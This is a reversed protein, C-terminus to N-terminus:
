VAPERVLFYHRTVDVGGFAGYDVGVEDVVRFGNKLYVKLGAPESMVYTKLGYKDAVDTGSKVLANGIGKHWFDPHTTLYELTLVEEGNVVGGPALLKEEAVELPSSRYELLGTDKMGPVRGKADSAADYAEKYLATQIDTPEVVQASLWVDGRKALSPPLTWRAYGIVKEEKEEKGNGNETETESKTPDHDLVAVEHRRADRATSITHPLRRETASIITEPNPDIFLFSWHPDTLRSLIM